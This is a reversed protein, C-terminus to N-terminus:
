KWSSRSCSVTRSWRCCCTTRPCRWWGRGWCSPDRRPSSGFTEARLRSGQTSLHTKITKLTSMRVAPHCWRPHQSALRVNVSLAGWHWRTNGKEVMIVFMLFYWISNGEWRVRFKQLSQPMSHNIKFNNSSNSTRQQGHSGDSSWDSALIWTVRDWQVLWLGHLGDSAPPDNSIWIAAQGTKRTDLALMTNLSCWAPCEASFSYAEAIKHEFRGYKMEHWQM